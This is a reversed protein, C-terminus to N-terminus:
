KVTASAYSPKPLLIAWGVYLVQDGRRFPVSFPQQVAADPAITRFEPPVIQLDGATWLVVAGRLRLDGLDIWPAREPKGDILM